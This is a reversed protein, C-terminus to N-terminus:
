RSTVHSLALVRDYLPRLDDPMDAEHHRLDTRVLSPDLARGTFSSLKGVAAAPDRHLEAYEIVTSALGYADIVELLREYQARWVHYVARAPEDGVQGFYRLTSAAVEAPSRLCVILRPRGDLVSLWPELTWCFRPDKWAPTANQAAVVMYGTYPQAAEIIQERSASSFPPGVGAANLIAQNAEIVPREEFYGEANHEDPPILNHGVALGAEHLLRAVASTGSRGSGCVIFRPRPDRPRASSV